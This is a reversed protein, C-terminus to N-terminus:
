LPKFGKYPPTNKKLYAIWDEEVDIDSLEPLFHVTLGLQAAKELTLALVTPTSWAIDAFLDPCFRRMGLLYYGGDPAPGVVLDSVALASFAERLHEGELEPCDAGIIVTREAGAAFAQRFAEQMREGLDAGTQIHLSFEDAPWDKYAGPPEAFWLQREADVQRATALTTDLLFRYIRLAEADGLTRALRTKVYGPRPPKLFVLLINPM